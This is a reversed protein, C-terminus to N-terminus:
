KKKPIFLYVVLVIIFAVCIAGTCLAVLFFYDTWSPLADAAAFIYSIVFMLAFLMLPRFIKHRGVAVMQSSFGSSSVVKSSRKVAKKKVSKKVM